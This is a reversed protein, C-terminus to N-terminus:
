ERGDVLLAAVVVDIGESLKSLANVAYGTELQIHIEPYQKRFESLVDPLISQTATVSAFLTSQERLVASMGELDRQLAGWRRVTELAYELFVQGEDTLQGSREDRVLLPHGLQDEIRQLARSVASPSM